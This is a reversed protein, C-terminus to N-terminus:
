PHSPAVPDRPEGEKPLRSLRDAISAMACAHGRWTAPKDGECVDHYLDRAQPFDRDLFAMGALQYQGWLRLQDLPSVSLRSYCDAATDRLDLLFFLDSIETLVWARQGKELPLWGEPIMLLQRLNALCAEQQGLQSQTYALWFRMQVPMEGQRRAVQDALPEMEEPSGNLVLRRLSLVLKLEQDSLDAPSFAGFPFQWVGTAPTDHELSTAWDGFSLTVPMPVDQTDTQDQATAFALSGLWMALPLLLFKQPKRRMAAM